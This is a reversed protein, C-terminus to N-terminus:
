WIVESRIAFLMKISRCNSLIIWKWGYISQSDCTFGKRSSFKLCTPVGNIPSCTTIKLHALNAKGDMSQINWIRRYEPVKETEYKWWLRQKQMNKKHQLPHAMQIISWYMEYFTGQSALFFNLAQYSTANKNRKPCVKLIKSNVNIRQHLHVAAWRDLLRQHHPSQILSQLGVKPHCFFFPIDKCYISPM